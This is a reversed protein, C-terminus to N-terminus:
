KFHHSWGILLSNAHPSSTERGGVGLGATASDGAYKGHIYNGYAFQLEGQDTIQYSFGATVQWVPNPAFLNLSTSNASSDAAPRRAYAFGTRVTLKDTVAYGAGFRYMDASRWHFGTGNPSGFGSNVPDVLSNLTGNALARIGKFEIRQYDMGLSLGKIPKLGFGVSYNAPIDFAGGDAILGRYKHFREMYIKSSYSAGLDLWQTIHGLWGVRVGVGLATDYGLNTVADPAVSVAEFAQLGYAKFRQFGILPAIGFSYQPTAQWSLMPALIVQALDFGLKGCGFFFNVHGDGCPKPDGPKTPVVVTDHFETNLGGNGFLSLGWSLKDNIRHTYGLEPLPFVPKKSTSSFDYIPDQADTREIHRHPAFFLIDFDLRDDTASLKAPNSAGGFGDFGIAASTGGSQGALPGYGLLFYGGGAQALLPLTAASLALVPRAFWRRHLKM